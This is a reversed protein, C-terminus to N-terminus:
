CFLGQIRNYKWVKLIAEDVSGPLEMGTVGKKALSSAAGSGIKAAVVYRCDSFKEASKEMASVEHKGGLCVPETKREEVLDYDQEGVFYIYFKEARGYHMDVSNGDSSALAVRYGGSEDM